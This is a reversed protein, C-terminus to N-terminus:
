ARALNYLEEVSLKKLDEASRNSYRESCYHVLFDYDRNLSQGYRCQLKMYGLNDGRQKADYAEVLLHYNDKESDYISYLVDEPYYRRLFKDYADLDKSLLPFQEKLSEIVYM